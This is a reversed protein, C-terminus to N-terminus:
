SNLENRDSCTPPCLETRDYVNSDDEDEPDGNRGPIFIIDNGEVVPVIVAKASNPDTADELGFYVRVSEADPNQELLNKISIIPILFAKAQFDQGSSALYARWNATLAAAESVTIKGTSEPLSPSNEDM